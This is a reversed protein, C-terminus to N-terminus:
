SPDNAVGRMCGESSELERRQFELHGWLLNAIVRIWWEEFHLVVARKGDWVDLEFGGVHSCIQVDTPKRIHIRKM